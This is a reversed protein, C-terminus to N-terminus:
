DRLLERLAEPSTREWWDLVEVYVTGPASLRALASTALLADLHIGIAPFGTAGGRLYSALATPGSCHGLDIIPFGIGAAAVYADLAATGFCHEGGAVPVPLEAALQRTAAPEAVPLPDEVWLVREHDVAGLFRRVTSPTGSGFFELAIGMPAPLEVAIAEFRAVSAALDGVDVRMKVADFGREVSTAAERRADDPSEGFWFGSWYIRAVPTSAVPASASGLRASAPPALSWMAADLASLARREVPTAGAEITSWTTAWWPATSEDRVHSPLDARDVLERAATATADAQAVSSCRVRGTGVGARDAVRAEVAAVHTMTGAPTVVPPEIAIREITIAVDM